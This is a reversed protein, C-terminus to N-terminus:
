NLELITAVIRSKELKLDRKITKKEQGSFNTGRKNM